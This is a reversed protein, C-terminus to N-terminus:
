VYCKIKNLGKQINQRVAERTVGYKKGIQALTKDNYYYEIIQEKQKDNLVDSAFISDFIEKLNNTSEIDEIYDYPDETNECAVNSMYSSEEKDLSSSLKFKNKKHKNTMYTKIAWIACQNRYSYKTKSKGEFGKRESDWRWDAYMIANAIDAIVDENKLMDKVASPYMSGGFKAITKKALTLYTSLNDFEM